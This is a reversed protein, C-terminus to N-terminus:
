SPSGSLSNHSPLTHPYGEPNLAALWSDVRRGECQVNPSALPLESLPHIASAHLHGARSISGPPGLLLLPLPEWLALLFVQSVPDHQTSIHMRFWEEHKDPFGQTELTFHELVPGPM